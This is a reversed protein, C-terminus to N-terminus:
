VLSDIIILAKRMMRALCTPCPFYEEGEDTAKVKLYHEDFTKYGKYAHHHKRGCMRCVKLINSEMDKEERGRAIRISGLGIVILLIDVKCHYDIIEDKEPRKKLIMTQHIIKPWCLSSSWDLTIDIWDKDGKSWILM